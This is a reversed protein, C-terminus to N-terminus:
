FYGIKGNIQTVSTLNAFTVTTNDSLTLTLGGAGSTAHAEVGALSWM